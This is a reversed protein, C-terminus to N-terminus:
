IMDYTHHTIHSGLYTHTRYCAVVADSLVFPFDVFRSSEMSM